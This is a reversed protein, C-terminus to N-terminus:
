QEQELSRTQSVVAGFHRELLVQVEDTTTMRMMADM